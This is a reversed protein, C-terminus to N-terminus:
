KTGECINATDIRVIAERIAVSAKYLNLQRLTMHDEMHWSQEATLDSFGSEIHLQLSLNYLDHTDM